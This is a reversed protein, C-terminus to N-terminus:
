TKSKEALSRIEHWSGEANNCYVFSYTDYYSGGSLNAPLFGVPLPLHSPCVFWLSAGWFSYYLERTRLMKGM